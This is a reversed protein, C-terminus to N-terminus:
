KIKRSRDRDEADKKATEEMESELRKRDEILWKEFEKKDYYAQGLNSAFLTKDVKAFFRIKVLCTKIGELVKDGFANIERLQTKFYQHYSKIIAKIDTTRTFGQSEFDKFTSVNREYIEIATKISHNYKKFDIYLSFVDNKLNMRGLHKIHEETLKLECPFLLTLEDSELIKDIQFKNGDIDNFSSQLEQEIYVLANYRRTQTEMFKSFLFTGIGVIFGFFAGKFADSTKAIVVIYFYAVSIVFLPIYFEKRNIYKRLNM